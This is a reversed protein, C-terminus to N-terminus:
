QSVGIPTIDLVRAPVTCFIGYTEYCAQWDALEANLEGVDAVYYLAQPSQTQDIFSVTERQIEFAKEFEIYEAHSCSTGIAVLLACFACIAGLCMPAESYCKPYIVFMVIATIVLVAFISWWFIM